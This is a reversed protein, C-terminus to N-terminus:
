PAPATSCGRPTFLDATRIRMLQLHMLAHTAVSHQATSRQAAHHCPLFRRNSAVAPARRRPRRPHTPLTPLTLSTRSSQWQQALRPPHSVAAVRWLVNSQPTWTIHAAIGPHPLLLLSTPHPAPLCLLSSLRNLRPSRQSKNPRRCRRSCKRSGCLCSLVPCSLVRCPSVLACAIDRRCLLAAAVVALLCCTPSFSSSSSSLLLFSAAFSRRALRFVVVVRIPSYRVLVLSRRWGLHAMADQGVGM